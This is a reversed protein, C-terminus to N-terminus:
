PLKMERLRHCAVSRSIWDSGATEDERCMEGCAEDLVENVATRAAREIQELYIIEHEDPCEALAIERLRKKDM